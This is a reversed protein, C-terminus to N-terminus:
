RSRLCLEAWKALDEPSVDPEHPGSDISMNKEYVRYIKNETSLFPAPSASGFDSYETPGVFWGWIPLPTVVYKLRSIGLFNRKKVHEANVLQLPKIGNAKMLDIFEQGAKKRELATADQRAQQQAQERARRAMAESLSEHDSM